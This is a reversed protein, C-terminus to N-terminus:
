KGGNPAGLVEGRAHRFAAIERQAIRATGEASGDDSVVVRVPGGYRCAATDISRLLRAINDAENYAPVIVDVPPRWAGPRPLRRGMWWLLWLPAAVLVFLVSVAYLPLFVQWASTLSSQRSLFAYGAVLLAAVTLLACCTLVTDWPWRRRGTPVTTARPLVFATFTLRIVVLGGALLNALTAEIGFPAVPWGTALGAVIMLADTLVSMAVYLAAHALMAARRAASARAVLSIGIIYSVALLMTATRLRPVYGNVRAPDHTIAVTVDRVADAYLTAPAPRQWGLFILGLLACIALFAWTRPRHPPTRAPGPIVIEARGNGGDERSDAWVPLVCAAALAALLGATALLLPLDM